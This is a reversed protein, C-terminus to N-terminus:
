KYKINVKYVHPPCIIINLILLMCPMHWGKLILLMCPM